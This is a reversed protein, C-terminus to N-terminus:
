TCHPFSPIKSVAHQERLFPYYYAPSLPQPHAPGGPGGFAVLGLFLDFLGSFTTDPDQAWALCYTITLGSVLKSVVITQKELTLVKGNLM